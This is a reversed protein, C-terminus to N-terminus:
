GRVALRVAPAAGATVQALPGAVTVPEGELGEGITASWVAFERDASVYRPGSQALTVTIQRAELDVPRAVIELERVGVVICLSFGQARSQKAPPVLSSGTVRSTSNTDPTQPWARDKGPRTLVGAGVRRLV